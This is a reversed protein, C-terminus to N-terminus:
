FLGSTTCGSADRRGFFGDIRALPCFDSVDRNMCSVPEGSISYRLPDLLGSDSRAAAKVANLPHVGVMEVLPDLCLAFASISLVQAAPRVMLAYTAEPRGANTVCAARGRDSDACSSLSSRPM